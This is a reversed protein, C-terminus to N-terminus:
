FAKLYYGRRVSLRIFRFGALLRLFNFYVIHNDAIHFRDQSIVNTFTCLYTYFRSVKALRYIVVILMFTLCKLSQQGVVRVQHVIKWNKISRECIESFDYDVWLVVRQGSEKRLGHRFSFFRFLM